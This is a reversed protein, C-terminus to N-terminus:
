STTETRIWCPKRKKCCARGALGRKHAEHQTYQNWGLSFGHESKDGYKNM